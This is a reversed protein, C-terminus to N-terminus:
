EATATVARDVRMDEALGYRKWELIGAGVGVAGLEEDGRDGGGEEVVLVDDKAFDDVAHIDNALDLIGSKPALLRSGVNNDRM